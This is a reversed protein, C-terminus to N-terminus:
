RARWHKVVNDQFNAEGDIAKGLDVMFATWLVFMLLFIIVKM